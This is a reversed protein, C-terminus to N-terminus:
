EWWGLVPFKRLLWQPITGRRYRARVIGSGVEGRIRVLPAGSQVRRVVTNTITGKDTHIGEMDVKWGIPVIVQLIGSGITIDVIVEPHQCFSQTFDLRIWGSNTQARLAAPVMWRGTKRRVGADTELVAVPPNPDPIDSIVLLLETALTANYVSILRKDFEKLTISKTEVGYRLRDIVFERESEGVRRVPARKPASASPETRQEGTNNM